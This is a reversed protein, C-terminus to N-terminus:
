GFLRDVVISAASRVSLHNYGSPTGIPELVLDCGEFVEPALGSATGFLVILPRGGKAPGEKAEAFTILPKGVDRASTAIVLPREGCRAEAEAVAGEFTPVFTICELAHKRDANFEGGKGEVWHGLLRKILEVQQPLNTQVLVGGLGYTRALRAFDHMDLTTIASTIIRGERDVTPHHMLLLFVNERV